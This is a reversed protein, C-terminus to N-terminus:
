AGYACVTGHEVCSTGAAPQSSPCTCSWEAGICSCWQGVEPYSCSYWGRCSSPTDIPLCLPKPSGGGDGGAVAGDCPNGSVPQEAPCDACSWNGDSCVCSTTAYLCAQANAACAGAPKDAPCPVLRELGVGQDEGLCSGIWQRLVQAEAAT